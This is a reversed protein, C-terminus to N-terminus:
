GKVHPIQPVAKVGFGGLELGDKGLSVGKTHDISIEM